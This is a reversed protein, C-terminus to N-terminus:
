KLEYNFSFKKICNVIHNLSQKNLYIHLPLSLSQTQILRAVPFNNKQLKKYITQNPIILPHKIRTEINKSELYRKLKDRNKVLIQYDYGSSNELDYESNLVYKKLKNQYFKIIQKRIKMDRKYHKLQNILLIAQLEDFKYNLEFFDSIERNQQQLGLDRLKHLQIKIKKSNTLIAGGEGFGGFVKMPNFSFTALDAFGGAFIKQKKAGLAQAADEITIINKKKSIKLIEEINSIVGKFHVIIVAKTKKTISKLFSKPCINQDFKVDVFIPKAGTMSIAHATAIWSISPCIVECGKGINLSKLALYIATTGSSVGVCYKKKCIQAIKNEFIKLYKGPLYQGSNLYKKFDRTLDVIDDNKKKLDRYKILKKM